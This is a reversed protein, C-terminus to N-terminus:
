VGITKLKFERVPYESLSWVQSIDGIIKEFSQIIDLLYNVRYHVKFRITFVGQEPTTSCKFDIINKDFLQKFQKLVEQLLAKHIIKKDEESIWKHNLTSITQFDAYSLGMIIKIHVMFVGHGM